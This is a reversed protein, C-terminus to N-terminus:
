RGNKQQKLYSRGNQLIRSTHSITSPSHEGKFVNIESIPPSDQDFQKNAPLFGNLLALVGILIMSFGGIKGWLLQIIDTISQWRPSSDLGDLAHPFKIQLIGVGMALLPLLIFQRIRQLVAM